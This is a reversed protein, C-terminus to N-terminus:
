PMVRRIQREALAERSQRMLGALLDASIPSNMANLLGDIRSYYTTRFTDTDACDLLVTLTTENM